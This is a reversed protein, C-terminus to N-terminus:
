PLYYFLEWKCLERAKPFANGHNLCSFLAFNREWGHGARRSGGEGEERWTKARRHQWCLYIIVQISFTHSDADSRTCLLEECSRWAAWPSKRRRGPVSNGNEKSSIVANNSPQKNEVTTVLEIGFESEAAYSEESSTWVSPTNEWNWHRASMVGLAKHGARTQTAVCSPDPPGGKVM